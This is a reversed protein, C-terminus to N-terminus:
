PHAAVGSDGLSPVYVGVIGLFLKPLDPSRSKGWPSRPPAFISQGVLSYLIFNRYMHAQHCSFCICWRGSSITTVQYFIVNQPRRGFRPRLAFGSYRLGLRPRLGLLLAVPPYGATALKGSRSQRGDTRQIQEPGLLQVSVSSGSKM